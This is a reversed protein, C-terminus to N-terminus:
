SEQETILGTHNPFVSSMGNWGLLFTEVSQHCKKDFPFLGSSSPDLSQCKELNKSLFGWGWHGEILSPGQPPSNPPWTIVVWHPTSKLWISFGMIDCLHAYGSNYIIYFIRLIHINLNLTHIITYLVTYSIYIYIYEYWLVNLSLLLISKCM